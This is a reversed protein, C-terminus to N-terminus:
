PLIASGYRSSSALLGMCSVIRSSRSWLCPSAVGVLAGLEVVGVDVQEEGALRVLVGLRDALVLVLEALDDREEAPVQVGVAFGVADVRSSPRRSLAM